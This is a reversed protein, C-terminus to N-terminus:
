AGSALMLRALKGRSEVDNPDRQKAANLFAVARPLSENVYYIEALNRIAVTNTPELRMVNLYEIEARDFQNASFYNNARQLHRNAKARKTCGTACVLLCLLVPTFWRPLYLRKM